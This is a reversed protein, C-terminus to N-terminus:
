QASKLMDFNTNSDHQTQNTFFNNWSFEEISVRYMWNKIRFVTNSLNGLFGFSRFDPSVRPDKWKMNLRIRYYIFRIPIRVPIFSTFIVVKAIFCSIMSLIVTLIHWFVSKNQTDVVRELYVWVKAFINISEQHINKTHISCFLIWFDM